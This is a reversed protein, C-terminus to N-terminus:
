LPSDGEDGEDGFTLETQPIIMSDCSNLTDAVAQHYVGVPTQPRDALSENVPTAPAIPVNIQHPVIPAAVPLVMPTPIQADATGAATPM